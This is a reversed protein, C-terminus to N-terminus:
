GSLHDPRQRLRLVREGPVRQHHVDLPCLPAHRCPGGAGEYNTKGGSTIIQAARASEDPGVGVVEGAPDNVLHLADRIQPKLEPEFGKTGTSMGLEVLM